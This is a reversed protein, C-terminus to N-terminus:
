RPVLEVLVEYLEQWASSLAEPDICYPPMMYVVSGLPRLFLGRELSKQAILEGIGSRYGEDEKDDLEVDFAAISGMVRCRKVYPLTMMMSLGKQHIGEIVSVRQLTQETEFLDLSALGAACALPNATYSHGHAFFHGKAEGGGKENARAFSHYLDDSTITAALPMMGGTLGKACCLIDPTVASQECAFMTGLRGFATMVEDFIILAGSRERIMSVAEALFRSSSMKMGGAGRVLPEIVVAALQDKTEQLRHELQELAREEKLPLENDHLWTEPCPTFHFPYVLGEFGDYLGSSFGASMAGLTDGHYGGEFALFQTREEGHNRWYHWAMKLAVEIATSGNDSFFVRELPSPTLAALRHALSVAGAHTAGAFLVHSLRRGQKEIASMIAPHSHGHTVVWWSSILDWYRRGDEDQLYAGHAEEIVLSKGGKDFPHWLHKADLARVSQPSRHSPIKKM